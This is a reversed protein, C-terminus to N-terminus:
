NTTREEQGNLKEKGGKRYYWDTFQRMARHRVEFPLRKWEKVYEELVVQKREKREPLFLAVRAKRGKKRKDSPEEGKQFLRYIYFRNVKRNKEIARISCGLSVYLEVLEKPVNAPMTDLYKNM